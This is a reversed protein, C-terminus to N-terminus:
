FRIRSDNAQKDFDFLQPTQVVKGDLNLEKYLDPVRQQAYRLWSGFTVGQGDSGAKHAQLAEQVLSYTLLGHQLAQNEYANDKAQTATLIRMGKDYALQGLGADGMPGPKFSNPVTAASNCADIIVVMDGADVGRLWQSLEDSSVFKSQVLRPGLDSPLIYFQGGANLGHGAFGLIVLDDPTAKRLQDVSPGINQKLRRRGEEHGRLLALTDAINQKTAHHVGSRESVLPIAVVEYGEIKKLAESLDLADKAAYHLELDPHNGYDNVGITIVYAKPTAEGVDDPVKYDFDVATKSKVRDENFAYATFKVPQGKDRAPLKVKFPITTKLSGVLNEGRWREIDEVSGAGAKPEPWEGVIQGNRFLRLDYAATPKGYAPKDVGAVEVEVLVEDASKARMVTPINVEPQNRNLEALSRM